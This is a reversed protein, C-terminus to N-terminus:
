TTALNEDTINLLNLFNGTTTEEGDVNSSTDEDNNSIGPVADPNVVIGEYDTPHIRSSPLSNVLSSWRYDLPTSGYLTKWLELVDTAWSQVLSEHKSLEENLISKVLVMKDCEECEGLDISTIAPESGMDEDLNAEQELLKQDIDGLKAHISAHLEVAWLIACKFEKEIIAKEEDSRDITLVAQIGARVDANKAWPAQSHFLYVDQWFPSDLSLNTFTHYTLPQNEPLNLQDPAFRTLYNSRYGNFKNVSATIPGKRREIAALIRTSLTTGIHTGRYLPQREAHLEVAHSYLKSKAHWVLLRANQEESNSEVLAAPFSTFDVEVLTQEHEHAESIELLSEMISDYTGPNSQHTAIQNIRRRLKELTAQRDLYVALREREETEANTHNEQFSRQDQWQSEFFQHDYNSQDNSFVNQVTALEALQARAAEGKNDAMQYKHKIWGVLSSISRKNHFEVKHQLSGLRHNRTAYRLPSVLPSLYSWLRELGEGDSLGWGTNFRPSFELQCKWNHVYSHFVSTGFHLQDEAEPFMHRLGIFKKMTCGIDYLIRVERESDVDQLIQNIISLPYKRKEGGGTINALYIAADHRCCSGMLGTDDCAKWTSASRKDDAAKHADACRDATKRVRHLDEQDLIKNNMQQIDDPHIFKSPTILSLYNKSAAFHHRHQFNGDLCIILPHSAAGDTTPGFCAPCSEKALIDQGSLHMVDKFIDNSRNLLARYIDVAITFSRRLDRKKGSATLLPNSREELWAQMTNMFPLNGVTCWQWLHNHFGLLNFSFATQPAVPSCGLYGQALLHLLDPICKCFRIQARKQKNLDILDVTRYHCSSEECDCLLESMDKGWEPTTWNATETKLLLYAGHLIPMVKAWNEQQRRHAETQNAQTHYRRVYDLLEDPENSNFQDHDLPDPNHDGTNFHEAQLSNETDVLNDTDDEAQNLDSQLERHAAIIGPNFRQQRGQGSAFRELREFEQIRDEFPAIRPQYSTRRERFVSPM